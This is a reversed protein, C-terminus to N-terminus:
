YEINSIGLAQTILRAGAISRPRVEIGRVQRFHRALEISYYGEHSAFDLATLNAAEPVREKIIRVLKDRRSTHIRLVDAPLDSQTSAGDPLDFKYFWTRKKVAALADSNNITM